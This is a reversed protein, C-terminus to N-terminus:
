NVQESGAAVTKVDNVAHDANIEDCIQQWSTSLLPKTYEAPDDGVAEPPTASPIYFYVNDGDTTYFPLAGSGSNKPMLGVPHSGNDYDANIDSSLSLGHNQLATSFFGKSKDVHKQAVYAVAAAKLNDDLDDPKLGAPKTAKKTSSSHASSQVQSTTSSSSAAAPTKAQHAQQYLVFGITTALIVIILVLIAIIGQHHSNNRKQRDAVTERTPRSKAPEDEVPASQRSAAQTAEPRQKTPQNTTKHPLKIKLEWPYRQNGSVLPYTYTTVALIILLYYCLEHHAFIFLLVALILIVIETILNAKMFKAVTRWNDASPKLKSSINNKPHQKIDELESKLQQNEKELQKELKDQNSSHQHQESM